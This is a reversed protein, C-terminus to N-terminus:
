RQMQAATQEAVEWGGGLAKYLAVLGTATATRARAHSADAELRAREVDLVELFDAGGSEFRLLALEAARANSQASARLHDLQRRSAGYRTLANETEELAVLVAKEYEALSATAEAERQQIRARVHGFDLAAWSIGPGYRYTATDADGIRNGSAAAFGIEGTFSVRPFWDARAIGINATALALRREAARVDARRRLLDEPRGIALLRPLGPLATPPRLKAALTPPQQGVLVSLRHIAIDIDAQNGPLSALTTDLLASARATDFETGRGAEERAQVIGLTERLNGANRQAVALQEQAGRLELYTAAVEAAISVQLGRLNERVAQENARGAEIQRRVRGFLDLEWSADLTGTNLTMEEMVGRDTEDASLRSKERAARVGLVPWQDSQAGRRLARAAQLNASAARLDHNATMAQAILDDLTSDGFVTWFAAIPATDAYIFPAEPATQTSSAQSAFNAPVDTKPSEHDPGVACGPLWAGVSAATLAAIFTHRNM